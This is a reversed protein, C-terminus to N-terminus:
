SLFENRFKKLKRINKLGPKEEFKSNVDIGVWQPHSFNKLDGVHEGSIGGSLFFPQTFKYKNLVSWNFRRGSGGPLMSKTDFLFYDVKDLYTKTQDFDFNDDVSFAKILILNRGRFLNCFDASEEGHFQLGNLRYKTIQHDIFKEEADVFVGIKKIEKVALNLDHQVFRPSKPHFILGMWDAPLEALQDINQQYKMGCVKFIM